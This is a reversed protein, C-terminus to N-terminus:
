QPTDKTKRRGHMIGQQCGISTNSLCFSVLKTFTSGIWAAGSDADPTYPLNPEDTLM